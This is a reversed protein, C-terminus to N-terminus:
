AFRFVFIKEWKIGSMPKELRSSNKLVWGFKRNIRHFDELIGTAWYFMIGEVRPLQGLLGYRSLPSPPSAAWLPCTSLTTTYLYSFLSSFLTTHWPPDKAVFPCSSVWERHWRMYTRQGFFPALSHGFLRDSHAGYKRSFLRFYLDFYLKGCEPTSRRCSFKASNQQMNVSFFIVTSLVIAHVCCLGRTRLLM